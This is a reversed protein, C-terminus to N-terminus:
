KRNKNDFFRKYDYIVHGWSWIGRYSIRPYDISNMDPLNDFMERSKEPGTQKNCKTSLVKKLEQVGYLLGNGDNGGIVILRGKENFPSDMISLTFGEPKDPIDLKGNSVREQIYPNCEVTGALIVHESKDPKWEEAKVTEIVYPLFTQVAKQLEAFAYKKVGESEDYVIAWRLGKHRKKHSDM